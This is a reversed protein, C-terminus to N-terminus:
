CASSLYPLGANFKHVSLMYYAISVLKDTENHHFLRVGQAEQNAIHMTQHTTMELLLQFPAAQGQGLRAGQDMDGATLPHTLNLQGLPQIDLRDGQGALEILQGLTTQDLPTRIRIVPPGMLQKQGLRGHGMQLADLLSAIDYMATGHAIQVLLRRVGEALRELRHVVVKGM